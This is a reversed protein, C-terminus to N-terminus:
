IALDADTKGAEIAAKYWEPKRGKGTWTQNADDPNRFRPVGKTKPAGSGRPKRARAPAQALEELSYGFAAAAKAAADQAARMDQAKAKELAKDIRTRLKELEKKSMGNLDVTM